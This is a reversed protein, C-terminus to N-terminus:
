KQGMMGKLEEAMAGAAKKFAGNIASIVLEELMEKEEASIITKDIDLKLLENKGNVTATVMGGGSSSEFRMQALEKQKKSFMTQFNKAEEMISKIDFKM